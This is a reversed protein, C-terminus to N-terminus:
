IRILPYGSTEVTIIMANEIQFANLHSQSVDWGINMTLCVCKPHELIMPNSGKLTGNHTQPDMENPDDIFGSGCGQGVARPLPSAPFSHQGVKSVKETASSLLLSPRHKNQPTILNTEVVYITNKSGVWWPNSSGKQRYAKMAMYHFISSLWKLSSGNGSGVWKCACTLTQTINNCRKMALLLKSSRSRSPTKWILYSWIHDIKINFQIM